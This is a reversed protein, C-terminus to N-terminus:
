TNADSLGALLADSARETEMRDVAQPSFHWIDTMKTRWPVDTAKSAADARESLSEQVAPAWLIEMDLTNARQADGLWRFALSLTTEWSEATTAQQEAVKALYGERALSAGEASQNSSDPALLYLPTQTTSALEKVDDKVAELIPRLDTAQSEWIDAEPPLLWMAGPDATFITSYDIEEGSQDTAPIGKVARQRFAQMTAIVLRQLIMHNIRDLLDLHEEYEGFTKGSLRPQNPFRVVPVVGDLTKEPEGLWSWASAEFSTVDGAKRRVAKWVEGPLYLYALDAGQVDDTFVKLAAIVKRRQVPHHATIVQRPDEVTIVPVDNEPAGVITYADAMTLKARHLMPAEADLGNAQWLRWAASDSTADGQSGTRIGQVILGRRIPEVVLKAYNARAKRQFRLYAERVNPATAPLPPNGEYYSELLNLRGHRDQLQKGLQALWWGPSGAQQTDIPM